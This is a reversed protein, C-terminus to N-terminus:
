KKAGKIKNPKKSRVGTNCIRPSSVSPPALPTALAGGCDGGGKVAEKSMIQLLVEESTKLATLDAGTAKAAEDMFMDFQSVADYLHPLMEVEAAAVASRMGEKQSAQANKAAELVIVLREFVPYVTDLVETIIASMSQASLGSLRKLLDYREQQLTLNIRPKLTAM